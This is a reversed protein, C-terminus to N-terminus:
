QNTWTGAKEHANLKAQIAQRWEAAYKGTIAEQFSRPAVGPDETFASLHTATDHDSERTHDTSTHTGRYALGAYVIPCSLADEYSLIVM